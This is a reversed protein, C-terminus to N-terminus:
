PNTVTYLGVDGNNPWLCAAGGAEVNKGAASDATNELRTVLIYSRGAPVCWDGSWYAYYNNGTGGWPWTPGSNLPDVPVKQIYTTALGPIWSTGGNSLVWGAAVPYSGNDSRYLELASRIQELDSKRQADRGRQRIGVFNVLLLGSLVSIITIVVLLEILTFGKSRDWIRKM